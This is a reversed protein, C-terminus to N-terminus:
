VTLYGNCKEKPRLPRLLLSQPLDIQSLDSRTIAIMVSAARSEM